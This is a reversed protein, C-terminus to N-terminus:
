IVGQEGGDRGGECNLCFIGCRCVCVGCGVGCAAEGSGRVGPLYVVIVSIQVPSILARSPMNCLLSLSGRAKVAVMYGWWWGVVCVLVIVSFFIVFFIIDLSLLDMFRAVRLCASLCVYM